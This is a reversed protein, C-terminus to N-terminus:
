VNTDLRCNGLYDSEVIRGRVQQTKDRVTIVIGVKLPKPAKFCVYRPTANGSAGPLSKVSMDSSENM